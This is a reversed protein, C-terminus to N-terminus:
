TLAQRVFQLCKGVEEVSSGSGAYEYEIYAPIGYREDRLLRLVAKIPTDGEGFAMNMGFRSKRDKLHLNAIMDHRRRIFAMVDFGAASFHGIDLNIRYLPCMALGADYSEPSAFRNPDDLNSHGHLALFLGYREVFAIARRAATLTTSVTMVQAGLARTMRLGCEIEKDTCSDKLMFNFAFVRIGARKFKLASESVQDLGPGLRWERVAERAAAQASDPVGEPPRGYLSAETPRGQRVRWPANISLSSPQLTPEFLECETLGLKQMAQIMKETMNGPTDLMDRFSYTHVGIRAEAIVARPHTEAENGATQPKEANM